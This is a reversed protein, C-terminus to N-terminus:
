DSAIDGFAIAGGLWLSTVGVTASVMTSIVGGFVVLALVDNVSELSRQFGAVRLLLYAGVLAELTNGVTIGLVSILPIGTWANALLAGLAVAPWLRFGWILLAALAIGTPAWVATISSQEHALTLGLKATGFYTASVLVLRTAYRGLEPRGRVGAVAEFIRTLSASAREPQDTNRFM